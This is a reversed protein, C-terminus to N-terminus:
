NYIIKLRIDNECRVRRGGRFAMDIVQIHAFSDPGKGYVGVVASNHFLQTGSGCRDAGNCKVHGSFRVSEKFCGTVEVFLQIRYKVVVETLVRFATRVAIRYTQIQLKTCDIESHAGEVQVCLTEANESFCMHVAKGFGSSLVSGTM